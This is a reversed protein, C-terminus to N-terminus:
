RKPNVKGYRDTHNHITIYKSDRTPSSFDLCKPPIVATLRVNHFGTIDIKLYRIRKREM